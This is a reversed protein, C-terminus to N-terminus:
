NFQVELSYLPSPFRNKFSCSYILNYRQLYNIIALLIVKGKLSLYGLVTVKYGKYSNNRLAKLFLRFGQKGTQFHPHVLIITKTQQNVDITKTYPKILEIWNM